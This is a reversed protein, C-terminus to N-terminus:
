YLLEPFHYEVVESLIKVGLKLELDLSRDM